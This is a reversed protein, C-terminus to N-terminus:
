CSAQGFGVSLPNLFYVHTYRTKMVQKLAAKCYGGLGVCVCVCVRVCVCVCAYVFVRVRDLVRARM